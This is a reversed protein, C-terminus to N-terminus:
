YPQFKFFILNFNGNMLVVVDRNCLTFPYVFVESVIHEEMCAQHRMSWTDKGVKDSLWLEMCHGEKILKMCLMALQGEFEILKMTKCHDKDFLSYPLAFIEWSEDEM